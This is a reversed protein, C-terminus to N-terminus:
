LNKKIYERQILLAYIFITIIVLEFFGNVHVPLDIVGIARLVTFGEEVLFILFSVFVLKWPLMFVRKNKLPASFLKVFFYICIIAFALNYYPAVAALEFGFSSM